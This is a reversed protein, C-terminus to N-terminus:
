KKKKSVTKKEKEYNEKQEKEAKVSEAYIESATEVGIAKDVFAKNESIINKMNTLQEKMEDVTPLNSGIFAICQKVNFM